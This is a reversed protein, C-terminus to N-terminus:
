EHEGLSNSIYAKSRSYEQGNIGQATFLVETRTGFDPIPTTVGFLFSQNNKSSLQITDPGKLTLPKGDALHASLTLDIERDTRNRLYITFFTTLNKGTDTESAIPHISTSRQIKMSLGKRNTGAFFLLGSLLLLITMIALIKKTFLAKFWQERNGFTYGIIGPQAGLAMVKRCADICRACNICEIQYGKRIDIGMPCIRVCAKCDICRKEEGPLSKLTLTGPQVIVTQFRGYPCFDRCFVRRMLTLDTFVVGGLVIATGLPWVGLKGSFLLPFFNYPSVFYWVFSCGVLLSFLLYYLHLILQRPFSGTIRFNEVKMGITRAFRDSLEVFATQPCAWGCWVRGLTMTMFIFLFIFLMVLLWLLYMEEIIFSRGALYFTLRPLDTEILGHGSVRIFPVMFWLAALTWQFITRRPNILSPKTM